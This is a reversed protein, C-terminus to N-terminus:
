AGILCTKGPSDLGNDVGDQLDLLRTSCVCYHVVSRSIGWPQRALFVYPSASRFRPNPRPFVTLAHGEATLMPQAILNTPICVPRDANTSCAYGMGPGCRNGACLFSLWSYAVRRLTEGDTSIGSYRSRSVIVAGASPRPNESRSPGITSSVHIFWADPNRHRWVLM